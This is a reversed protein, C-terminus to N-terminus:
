AESMIQHFEDATMGGPVGAAGFVGDLIQDADIDGPEVGYRAVCWENLATLERHFATSTRVTRDIMGQLKRREAASLSTM